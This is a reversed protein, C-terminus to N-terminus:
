WFFFGARGYDPRGALALPLLLVGPLVTLVFGQAAGFAVIFFQWVIVGTWLARLSSLAEQPARQRPAQGQLLRGTRDFDRAACPRQVPASGIALNESKAGLSALCMNMKQLLIADTEKMVAHCQESIPKGAM